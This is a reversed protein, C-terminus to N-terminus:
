KGLCFDAFIKDIVDQAATQGSIEGLAQWAAQLDVSVLDVPFGHEIAKRAEGLHEAALMLAEQHRLNNITGERQGTASGFAKQVIASRLDDLGKGTKASLTVLPMGPYEKSLCELLPFPDAIDCKNLLILAREGAYVDLMQRVDESLPDTADIILLLIGAEQAKSISKAIGISEVENDSERLGATDSLLVPIGEIDLYEEIVDRTTGPIHTVIVRDEQLLANMISSKGANPAGLLVVSLGERYIRGAHAGALLAAVEKEFATISGLAEQASLNEVDEPFDTAAAIITLMELIKDGLDMLKRSLTGSLQGAAQTAAQPTKAEILDLVAEAQALDLRGNLFARMTFEGPSALRAGCVLVASMVAALSVSGGHCQLEGVDEATYSHPARMLVALAEDILQGNQPNRVQGYYLHHSEWHSPPSHDKPLFFLRDLISAAASGSIRVIGIGGLGPPTAIAAITDFLDKKSM